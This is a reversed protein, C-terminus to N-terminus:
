ERKEWREVHEGAVQRWADVFARVTPHRAAREPDTTLTHVLRPLARHQVRQHVNIARRLSAVGRPDDAHKVFWRRGEALVGYSTCGSGHHAFVRFVRGIQALYAPLDTHIHTIGNLASM